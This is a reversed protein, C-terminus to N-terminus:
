SRPINGARCGAPCSRGPNRATSAGANAQQILRIKKGFSRVVKATDDTSGDDVVIIEDARRNQALVSNVARAIYSGVNYAPIIVSVKLAPESKITSM